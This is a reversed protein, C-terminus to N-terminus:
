PLVSFTTTRYLRAPPPPAITIRTNATIVPDGPMRAPGGAQPKVSVPKAYTIQPGPKYARQKKPKDAKPKAAKPERPPRVAKPPKPPKPPKPMLALKKRRAESRRKNKAKLREPDLRAYKARALMLQRAKVEAKFADLAPMAAELAEQTAFYRMWKGHKWAVVLKMTSSLYCLAHTVRQSPIGTQEAIWTHTAGGPLDCAHVAAYIRDNNSGKYTRSM